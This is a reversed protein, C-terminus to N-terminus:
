TWAPFNMRKVLPAYRPDGRIPDLFPDVKLYLMGPDKVRFALDLEAFARDTQGSQAYIEAAVSAAVSSFSKKLRDIIREAISSERRSQTM